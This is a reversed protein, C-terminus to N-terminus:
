GALFPFIWFFVACIRWLQVMDGTRGGPSGDGVLPALSFGLFFLTCIRWLQVRDPRLGGSFSM